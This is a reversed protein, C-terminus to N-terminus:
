IVMPGFTVTLIEPALSEAIGNRAVSLLFFSIGMKAFSGDVWFQHFFPPLVQAIKELCFSVKIYFDCGNKLTFWM